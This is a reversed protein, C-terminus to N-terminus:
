ASGPTSVASLAQRLAAARAAPTGANTIKWSVVSAATASACGDVRAESSWSGPRPGTLASRYPSSRNRTTASCRAEHLAVDGVEGAMAGRERGRGLVVAFPEVAVAALLEEGYCFARCPVDLGVDLHPPGDHAAQDLLGDGGTQSVRERCLDAQDRAPEVPT